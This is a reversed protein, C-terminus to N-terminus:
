CVKGACDNDEYGTVCTYICGDVQNGSALSEQTSGDAAACAKEDFFLTPTTLGQPSQKKFTRVVIM